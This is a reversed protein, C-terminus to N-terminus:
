GISGGLITIVLLLMGLAPLSKRVPDRIKMHMALAGLMLMGILAAAPVVVIPFWLGAILAISAAIKLTGILYAFWTPLGYAAFEELMTQAAGGRYATRRGFRLVWVNLLGLAASVQCIAIITHM